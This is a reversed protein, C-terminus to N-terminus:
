TPSPTLMWRTRESMFMWPISIEYIPPVPIQRQLNNTMDILENTLFLDLILQYLSVHIDYPHNEFHPVRGCGTSSPLTPLFAGTKRPDKTHRACQSTHWQKLSYTSTRNELRISKPLLEGFTPTSVTSICYVGFFCHFQWCDYQEHNQFDWLVVKKSTYLFRTLLPIEDVM